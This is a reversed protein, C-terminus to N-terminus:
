YLQVNLVKCLANEVKHEKGQTENSKAIIECFIGEYNIECTFLMTTHEPREVHCVYVNICILEKPM